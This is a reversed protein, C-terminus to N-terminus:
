NNDEVFIVYYRNEKTQQVDEDIQVLISVLYFVERGLSKIFILGM